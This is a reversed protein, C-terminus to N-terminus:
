FVCTLIFLRKISYNFPIILVGMILKNEVLYSLVNKIIM